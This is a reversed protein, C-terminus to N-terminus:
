FQNEQRYKIRRQALILDRKFLYYGKNYEKRFERTREYEENVHKANKARWARYYETRNERKTLRKGKYVDPLEDQNKRPRGTPKPNSVPTYRPNMGKGENEWQGNTLKPKM